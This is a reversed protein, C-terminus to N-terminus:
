FVFAGQLQWLAAALIQGLFGGINVTQYFVGWAMSSNERNSANVLTAQIGPKFVGTGTALVIAGSLFGWFSPFIAMLLYGIIKLVTSM